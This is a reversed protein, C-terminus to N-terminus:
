PTWPKPTATPARPRPPPPTKRPTPRRHPCSRFLFMTPPHPDLTAHRPSAAKHSPHRTTNLKAASAHANLTLPTPSPVTAEICPHARAIACQDSAAFDRDATFRVCATSRKLEQKAGMDTTRYAKAAVSLM